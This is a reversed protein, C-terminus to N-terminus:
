VADSLESHTFDNRKNGISGPGSQDPSTSSMQTGGFLDTQFNNTSLVM